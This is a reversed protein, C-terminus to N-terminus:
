NVIYLNPLDLNLPNKWCLSASLISDLDLWPEFLYVDIVAVLEQIAELGDQLCLRRSTSLFYFFDNILLM